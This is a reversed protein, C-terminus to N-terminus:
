LSAASRFRMLLVGYKRRPAFNEVAVAADDDVVFRRVRHQQIAVLDLWLMQGGDGVRKLEIVTLKGRFDAAHTRIRLNNNLVLERAVFDGPHFRMLIGARIGFHLENLRPTALIRLVAKGRMHSAIDAFDAFGLQIRRLKEIVLLAVDNTFVSQLTLVILRQAPNVPLLADQDVVHAALALHFVRLFRNGAFIQVGAEIEIELGDRFQSHFSLAARDHRKIRAHRLERWPSGDWKRDGVLEGAADTAGIPVFDCAIRVLRQHIAGDLRLKRRARRELRDHGDGSEFRAHDGIVSMEM